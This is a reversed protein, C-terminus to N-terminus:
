YALLERLAKEDPMPNVNLRHLPIGAAQMVATKREDAALRAPRDHSRDDLEIAALVQFDISCVVFDATLRNYRNFVRYFNAGKRVRIFQSISVQPLVLLDPFVKVLRQYLVQEPKSLVPCAFVPWLEASPSAKKMKASLVFVVVVLIALLGLAIWM